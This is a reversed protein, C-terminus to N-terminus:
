DITTDHYLSLTYINLITLVSRKSHKLLVQETKFLGFDSAFHLQTESDYHSVNVDTRTCHHAMRGRSPIRTARRPTFSCVQSLTIPLFYQSPPTMDYISVWSKLHHNKTNLLRKIMDATRLSVSGFGAGVLM